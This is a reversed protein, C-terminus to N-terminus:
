KKPGLNTASRRFSDRSVPVLAVDDEADAPPAARSAEIKSAFQAVTEGRVLSDLGVSVGMERRVRGVIRMALLSHGGLTLFGDEVGVREVGLVEAWLAAIAAETANRPAVYAGASRWVNAPPRLAKRVIKGSTTQPMEALRVFASPIMYDPLTAAVHARLAALQEPSFSETAPHHVFEGWPRTVGRIPEAERAAAPATGRHTFEADFHGVSESRPWFIEVDYDPHLTALAEPLIGMAAPAWRLSERLEAVTREGPSLAILASARLDAAVRADTLDSLRLVTPSGALMSRADDLSEISPALTGSGPVSPRAVDVYLVVDGRFKTLENSANGRKLLVDVNVIRPMHIRLTEFFSPDIVLESEHWLRQQARARLDNISLDDPAEHLAVSTHLTELLPLLRVDGVFIRGGPAVLRVARELVEVLYEASPFYQVVSNIIIEDFSNSELETIEDARALALTVRDAIAAFSPDARIGDLATASIDLGHYHEVHPAVCFLLLGTGCGIELVRRPRSALIREGTRDVWQRMESAPIPRKDYSSIWGAINFGSEVADGTEGAHSYTRDFVEAWRDVAEGVDGSAELEDAVVYAILRAGGSEDVHAMVAADHVLAHQALMTEIEGLEIRFGRVKVQFDLRGLYEMTGDARWRARDGTRYMRAGTAFPDAVFREATLEPRGHYGLGVQVGALYLEGPVGIPCPRGHADLVYLQTNAVPRGIPVLLLPVTSPPCPWYSVDVACETPGYLNHLRSAPLATYFAAVLDSALVEGSAMVDRLTTCRAAAPDAFFARLMSPVFHCVTVRHSTIADALYGADRHGGPRAMVLTAGTLLPWFFEWVSVDFSFPTKQLVVDSPTLQYESQMWLLRNVIGRHANVAGKPRGTSGSTYIMYAPDNESPAGLRESEAKTARSADAAGDLEILTAKCEALAPLTTALRHQALLVRVDSDQIMFRLRDAPNEPDLPVYAAGAKLVAVLAIVLEVSREACVGVLAGREAGAARLRVALADAAANLQEYTLSRREDVVATTNPTRTAQSALLSVLTEGRPYAVATDNWISVVHAREDASLLPLASVRCTPRAIVEDIVTRMHEFFRDITAGDFIDTRYELVIHLGDDQESAGCLLDFKATAFDSPQPEVIADGLTLQVSERAQMVFWVQFLPAHGLQRASRLELALKELPVDQHEYAALCTERTRRLLDGFSPDDQMQTRLVLVNPFYGILGELEVRGRASIPSGVVVDDQGSHRALVLSYVTLLTMNLTADHARSLARLGEMQAVSLRYRRRAGAFSPVSSRPRDTPLDLTPLGDLQQRWYALQGALVGGQMAERQWVAYDAYQVPLPALSSERGAAYADYLASLECFTVDRSWEDCVIHHTLLVLTWDAEGSRVLTARFLLDSSLDFHRRTRNVILRELEAARDRDSLNRLDVQELPVPRAADVTQRAGDPTAIFRTRLAEHRAVLSNLARQLAAIDVTGRIRLVRPVNYAVVNPVAQDLAWLLEQAPTLPAPGSEKRRPIQDQVATPQVAAEARDRLVRELLARREPSLQALRANLDANSNPTDSM